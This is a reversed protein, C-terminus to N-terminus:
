RMPFTPTSSRALRSCWWGMAQPWRWARSCMATSSREWCPWDGSGPRRAPQRHGRHPRGGGRRVLSSRRRHRHRGQPHAPESPHHVDARQVAFALLRPQAADGLLRRHQRHGRHQGRGERHLGRGPSREGGAVRRVRLIRHLRHDPDGAPHGADAAIGEGPNEAALCVVNPELGVEGLVERIVAVTIALPLVAGPHPKVLVPNGTVLSAFIGPYANWTPFTNCGIVLAIGRPVVHFRKEMRLPPRKGQPKDWEVEGPVRHMASVAYALAELARDQAHPGGAQFAMGFAQGTTHMVSHAIEHSRANLRALAELCVGARADIGADRWGPMAERMARLLLEFNPRPYAIGLDFGYPSREGGGWGATAPQELPFRQDRYGEFASRGAAAGAEPYAGPNEPYASWYARSAIAEMAADLTSRHREFLEHAASSRVVTASM